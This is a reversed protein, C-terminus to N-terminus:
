ALGHRQLLNTVDSKREMKIVPWEPWEGLKAKCKSCEPVPPNLGAWPGAHVVVDGGCESCTGIKKKDRYM